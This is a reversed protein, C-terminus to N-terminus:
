SIAHTMHRLWGFRRRRPPMEELTAIVDDGEAFWADHEGLEVAVELEVELAPDYAALIGTMLPDALDGSLNVIALEVM